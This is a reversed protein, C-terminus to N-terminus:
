TSEKWTSEERRRRDLVAEALLVDLPYTIKFAEPHGTIVRVRGGTAEVLSADDTAVARAGPDSLAGALRERRFGQPTQVARLDARDLTRDVMEVQRGDGATLRRVSKVTDAVPLAPVVADAGTSLESLVSEFLEPPALARASDHVLVFGCSAELAREALAVSDSRGIGGTIVQVPSESGGGGDFRGRGRVAALVRDVIERVSTELGGPATVVVAGISPAALVSRLAHALLPEGDVASVAKPVGAALRRGVGAALLICGVDEPTM